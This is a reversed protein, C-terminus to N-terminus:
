TKGPRRPAIPGNSIGLELAPHIEVSSLQAIRAVRRVVESDDALFVADWREVGPLYSSRLYVVLRGTSALRDTALKLAAHLDTVDGPELGRAVWEAVYTCLERM